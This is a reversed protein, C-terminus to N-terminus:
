MLNWKGNGIKSYVKGRVTAKPYFESRERAKKNGEHGKLTRVCLTVDHLKTSIIKSVHLRGNCDHIRERKAVGVFRGSRGDKELM